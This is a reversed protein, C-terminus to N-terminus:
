YPSFRNILFHLCIPTSPNIITSRGHGSFLFKEFLTENSTFDMGSVWRDNIVKFQNYLELKLNDGEIKTRDDSKKSKNKENDIPEQNEIIKQLSKTLNNIYDEMVEEQQSLKNLFISLFQRANIVGNVACYSGYLKIFPAFAEINDSSFEIGYSPLNITQFFSYYPNTIDNVQLLGPINYDVGDMGGIINTRMDQLVQPNGVFTNGATPIPTTSASYYGFIKNTDQNGMVNLLNLRQLLTTGQVEFDLNTTSKHAYEIRLNLFDQM